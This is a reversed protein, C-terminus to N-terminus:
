RRLRNLEVRSYFTNPFIYIGLRLYCDHFSREMIMVKSIRTEDTMQIELYLYRNPNNALGADAQYRSGFYYPHNLWGLNFLSNEIITTYQTYRNFQACNLPTLINYFDQQTLHYEALIRTILIQSDSRRNTSAGFYYGFDNQNRLELLQM